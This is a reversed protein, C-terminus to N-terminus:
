KRRRFFFLSLCGLGALAMSSPEPVMISMSQIEFNNAVDNLGSSQNNYLQFQIWNIPGGAILSGNQTYPAASGGLPTMTLSYTTPSTLTVDLKMGAVHTDAAYLSTGTNGMLDAVTWQGYNFYEFHYAALQQGTNVGGPNNDVGTNLSIGWGRYFHLTSPNDIITEFTQGVQLGGPELIARGANALGSDSSLNFLTWSTGLPSSSSMGQQVSAAPDTGNFSWPGFGFGGNQGATWGGSYTPNTAADYAIQGSCVGSLLAMAGTVAGALTVGNGFHSRM